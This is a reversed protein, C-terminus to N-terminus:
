GLAITKVAAGCADGLCARAWVEYDGPSLSGVDLTGSFAGDTIAAETDFTVEEEPTGTRAIGLSVQRVPIATATLDAQDLMMLTGPVEEGLASFAAIEGLTSGEQVGLTSLPVSVLVNTGSTGIGGTLSAQKTCAPDCRYLSFTQAGAPSATAARLARVEYSVSALQFRLGWLVGPAGAGAAVGDRCVEVVVVLVCTKAPTPTLSPLSELRLRVFLDEQEPRYTLSAETLEGGTAGAGTAGDNPPDAASAAVVGSFTALGSVAVRDEEPVATLEGVGVPQGQDHVFVDQTKNTDGAVLNSAWSTFAVHRGDASVSPFVSQYSTPGGTAQAGSPGMSVRETSGTQRDHVFIDMKANTDESVLNSARSSFAVYRGDASLIPYLSEGNAEAGDSRVSVRETIGTELDHVFMDTTANIDEPVLNSARSTFAVYRGDASISPESSRATGQVGDSGVSIMETIGTQRDLVFVDDAANADGSVLNPAASTFAVYRGDPTMVPWLSGGIAEAGDPGLSVRETIGTERDRVFVDQTQNTDGAVLNSAWSWFAVYRGDASISPPANNSKENGEAGDSAVSVRETVGTQRDRLFVDWQGNTDGPVLNSAPSRFVVYRGDPSMSPFYSYGNAEEGTHGVSVVETDGTQRDHVFVGGQANSIGPVLNTAYSNFAVYRGDASISPTGSGWPHMGESGDSAVSVREMRGPRPYATSPLAALLVAAIAALLVFTRVSPRQPM